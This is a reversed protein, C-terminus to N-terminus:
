SKIESIWIVLNLNLSTFKIIFILNFQFNLFILHGWIIQYIWPNLSIWVIQPNVWPNVLFDLSKVGLIHPDWSSSSCFLFNLHSGICIKAVSRCEFRVTNQSLISESVGDAFRLRDSSFLNHLLCDRNGSDFQCGSLSSSNRLDM